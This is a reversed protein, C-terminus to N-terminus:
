SRAGDGAVRLLLGHLYAGEPHHVSVPHDAPAGLRGEIRVGRGADAAAGSAIRVLLEPGVHHSCSFVLAHAEPAACLIAHLVLDKYARSAAAVDGKRRALPPPDVVILGYREGQSAAERLGTFADGARLTSPCATESLSLNRAALELAPASSDILTVAKAGGRAAAVAFGGTYAFVDLMRRGAALREVLDRADRQDLYFGTKQGRVVDVAYRRGREEVVVAEPVEGFLTGERSAYGERRAAHGDAREVGASAATARRLAAVIAEIRRHMGVTSARVVLVDAYRDVVLGPLGDGEANVLRVANCGALLPHETRARVAAEIRHGLLAEGPDHPGFSMLRVRIASRPSYHGYAVIEGASSRVAAWAGAADAGSGDAPPASVKAIAGSLLWPHRWRVSRERGPM